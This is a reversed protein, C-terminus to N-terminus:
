AQCRPASGQVVMLVVVAVRRTSSSVQQHTAVHGPALLDALQKHAEAGPLRLKVEVQFLPFLLM